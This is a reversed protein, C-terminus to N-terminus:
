ARGSVSENGAHSSLEEFSIHSNAGILTRDNVALGFSRMLQSAIADSGKLRGSQIDNLLRTAERRRM